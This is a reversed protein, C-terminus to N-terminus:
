LQEATVSVIIRETTENLACDLLGARRPEGEEFDLANRIFFGCAEGIPAEFLVALDQWAQQVDVPIYLLSEYDQQSFPEGDLVGSAEMFLSPKLGGAIWDGGRRVFAITGGDFEVTVRVDYSVTGMTCAVLRFSEAERWLAQFQTYPDYEPALVLTQDADLAPASLDIILEFTGPDTSQYFAMGFHEPIFVSAPGTYVLTGPAEGASESPLAPGWVDFPLTFPLMAGVETFPPMDYIGPRLRARAKKARAGSWTDPGFTGPVACYEVGELVQLRPGEAPGSTKTTSSTPTGGTSSTTGTSGGDTANSTALDEGCTTTVILIVFATSRPARTPSMM